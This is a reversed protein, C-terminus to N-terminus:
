ANLVAREAAFTGRSRSAQDPGPAGAVLRGNVQLSKRQDITYGCRPCRMRGVTGPTMRIPREIPMPVAAYLEDLLMRKMVSESSSVHRIRLPTSEQSLMRPTRQRSW